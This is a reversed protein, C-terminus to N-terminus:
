LFLRRNSSRGRLCFSTWARLLMWECCVRPSWMPEFVGFVCRYVVTSGCRLRAFRWVAATHAVIAETFEDPAAFTCRRYFPSWLPTSNALFTAFFAFPRLSRCSCFCCITPKIFSLSVFFVKKITESACSSKLPCIGFIKKWVPASVSCRSVEFM